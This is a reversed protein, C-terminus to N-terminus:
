PCTSPISQLSRVKLAKVFESTSMANEAFYFTYSLSYDTDAVAVFNNDSFWGTTGELIKSDTGSKNPIEMVVFPSTANARLTFHVIRPDSNDSAVDSVSFSVAKNLGLASKMPSLYHVASPIVPATARHSKSNSSVVKSRAQVFCTNATCGGGKALMDQVSLSAVLASSSEPVTFFGSWVEAGELESSASWPVLYVNIEISVPGDAFDNMAYLELPVQSTSSATDYNHAGSFSVSLPAYARKVSYHLPKWRGNWEVSSWSAGQWIDNLQWYLIGMTQVSPDSRLQRWRNMGTEYCRSQQLQTLYLYSDFLQRVDSESAGPCEVPPLAFHRDMQARIQENGNEHRQRFELFESSQSWDEPVTVPEYGLFSPMSQFGFESVFRSLPFINFDECDADYNYFHTDGATTGTQGWAKAYPDPSSILGNSPSSDVWIRQDTGDIAIIAPYITGGYLKSYDSVYLDRNTNSQSFWGMAVENENNGGWVVISSHIALRSIQEAVEAQVNKLFDSNTPYLACALMIEQWVMIGVEDAYDYFDDTQYMGGGWVRIMNMNSAIATDMVFQRDRSSVRTPLSDMPIFNAGKAYIPVGNVRIYFTSPAVTYQTLSNGAQSALQSASHRSHSSPSRSRTSAAGVSEDIPDQVLEVTRLGIKRSLTQVDDTQSNSSTGYVVKLDHLHPEGHGAPWWLTPNSIKIQGLQVTQVEDAKNVHVSTSFQLKGNLYVSATADSYAPVSSVQAYVDLTASSYDSTLHQHVIVQEMRGVASQYISVEGYVGSPIYAPGWDWGFDSGPKRVFNRIVSFILKILCINCDCLLDGNGAVRSPGYTITSLKRYLM